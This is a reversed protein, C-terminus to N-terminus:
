PVPSAPEGTPLPAPTPAPPLPADPPAQFTTDSSQNQQRLLTTLPVDSEIKSADRQKQLWDNYARVKLSQVMELTLPRDQEHELVKIVHWGFTSQVPASVEGPQLAFAAEEFPAVMVGRPFWGLDGGNQATQTDTSVEKAVEAFDEGNKLREEVANAADETAVLIHAAHIQEARQPVQSELQERVKTRALEPKVILRDYDARSMNSPKLFNTTYQDFRSVATARADDPAITPSPTPSPSAEPSGTPTGDSPAETAAAAPQTATSEPAQTAATTGTAAPTEDAGPTSTVEGTPSAVAATAAADATQTAAAANAESTGTAWAAATADVPPTPTPSGIPAPAFQETVFEDMDAQSVQVGLDGMHQLIIVNDVMASITDEALKAGRVDALEDNITQARQELQPRQDPQAFQYQQSIQALDQRLQLERVKWYDRREIKEGNVSAVASRPYFYYQYAAGVLLALIVVAGAIGTALYLIRKQRDERERRTVRRKSGAASQSGGIRARERIRDLM